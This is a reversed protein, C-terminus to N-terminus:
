GDLESLWQGLGIRISDGIWDTFRQRAQELPEGYNLQFLEPQVLQEELFAMSGGEEGAGFQQLFAVAAILGRFNKGMGHLCVVLDYRTKANFHSLRLRSWSSYAGVNAFYHLDARAFRVQSGRYWNTREDGYRATDTTIAMEPLEGALGESLAQRVRELEQAATTCLEDAVAKAKELSQSSITTGGRVILRDRAAAVLQDLGALDRESQDAVSMARILSDRAVRAVLRTLPSLDGRDAIELADIYETKQDRHISLPFWGARILVLSALTRAVRGNGDQFPHIQTFRHHLWAAEVEPPMRNDIHDRHWAILRDMEGQVQEPPCYKHSVGDPRTPNNPLMKWEGKRLPIEVERGMPDRGRATTQHRALLAHVEKVYGCTLPRDGKVFDFVGNIAAQHDWLIAAVTAADRDTAGSLLNEQIGREILLETVGRDIEYVREVIGTEISWERVLRERFRRLEDLQELRDRQERWVGDLARIEASALSSVDIPLDTIPAYGDWDNPEANM